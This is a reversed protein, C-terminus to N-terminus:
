TIPINATKRSAITQQKVEERRALIADRRGYYVDAPTINGLAEHYREENYYHAFQAMAESLAEPSTYVLLNVSAKATRHYRELKGNSEPHYPAALIHRMARIKLFEELARSLFGPGNDTLLAPGPEVPVTPIETFEVADQIVEIISTSAMNPQVRWALVMRSYDDLVSILYYYGWGAVFFYSADTHWLQNPMTTKVKYEKEAPFGQAEPPKLLGAQRLIRYVTSESVFRKERDVLRVAVERPSLSPHELAYGVIFGREEESLRNWVRGARPPLDTLGELGKETHRRRWRYYTASPVELEMLTRRVPLPSHEVLKLVEAKIRVDKRVYPEGL